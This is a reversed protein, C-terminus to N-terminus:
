GFISSTKNGTILSALKSRTGRKEASRGIVWTTVIGSWGAWFEFPLQFPAVPLHTFIQILPVLSYNLVIFLLGAYVVTPRARKTYNDSQNLEAVLVREKAQLETRITAEVESDRKQLLSELKLKFKQKEEGSLHFEDVIDGAKGIVDGIGGSLITQLWGM